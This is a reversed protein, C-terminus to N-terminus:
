RYMAPNPLLLPVRKEEDRQFADLVREIQARQQLWFLNALWDCKEQANKAYLILVTPQTSTPSVNAGRSSPQDQVAFANRQELPSSNSSKTCSQCPFSKCSGESEELDFIHMKQVNLKEKLKYRVVNASKDVCHAKCLVFLNDFLFAHRETYARQKARQTDNGKLPTAGDRLKTLDGDTSFSLM